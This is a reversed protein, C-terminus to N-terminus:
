PQLDAFWHKQRNLNNNPGSNHYSVSCFFGSKCAQIVEVQQLLIFAIITVLILLVSCLIATGMRPVPAVEKSAYLVM